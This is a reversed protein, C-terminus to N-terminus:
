LGVLGVGLVGVLGVGLFGVLGILGVLGVSGVPGVLGVTGDGLCELVAHLGLATPNGGAEGFLASVAVSGRDSIALEPM